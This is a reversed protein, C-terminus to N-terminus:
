KPQLTEDCFEIFTRTEDDCVFVGEVGIFGERKLQQKDVKTTELLKLKVVVRIFLPKTDLNQDLQQYVDSLIGDLRDTSLQIAALGVWNVHQPHPVAVVACSHVGSVQSIVDEVHACSTNINKYRFNDGARKVFFLNGRGDDRMIDGTSYYVDGPALVDRVELSDVSQNLYFNPINWKNKKRVLLGQHSEEKGQDSEESGQHSMQSGQRSLGTTVCTGTKPNRAPIDEGNVQVLQIPSTVFYKSRYGCAKAEGSHNFLALIGETAGYYNVLKPAEMGQSDVSGIHPPNYFSRITAATNGPFGLACWIRVNHLVHNGVSMSAVLDNTNQFGAYLLTATVDRPVTSLFNHPQLSCGTTLATTLHWIIRSTPSITMIIDRATVDFERAFLPGMLAFKSVSLTTPKSYGTTGSTFLILFTNRFKECGGDGICLSPLDKKTRELGEEEEQLPLINRNGKRRNMLQSQAVVRKMVCLGRSSLSSHLKWRTGCASEIQNVRDHSVIVYDVETVASLQHRLMEGVATLHYMVLPINYKLGVLECTLVQVPDEVFMGVPRHASHITTFVERYLETLKVDMQRFTTNHLLRNDPYKTVARRWINRGTLRVLFAYSPFLSLWRLIIKFDKWRRKADLDRLKCHISAFTFIGIVLLIILFLFVM